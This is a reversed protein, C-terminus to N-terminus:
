RMMGHGLGHGVMDRGGGMIDRLKLDNDEAWQELEDRAKERTAELEERKQEILTKQAETIDGDEVADALRENNGGMHGRGGTIYRLDIENDEAWQKLYERETERAARVEAMKDEILTKQEATIDGRDVKDQLDESLEAAREAQREEKAEDFVAQVEDKNLNFKSVIKDVINSEGNASDASAANVGLLSGAAITTVVGAALMTKNFKM